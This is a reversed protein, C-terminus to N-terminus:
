TDANVRSHHRFLSECISWTGLGFFLGGVLWILMTVVLGTASASEYFLIQGLCTGLGLFFGFRLVGTFLIYRFKGKERIAKWKEYDKPKM